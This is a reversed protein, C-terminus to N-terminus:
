KNRVSLPHFDASDRFWFVDIWDDKVRDRLIEIPMEVTQMRAIRVKRSAPSPKMPSYPFRSEARNWFATVYMVSVRNGGVIGEGIKLAQRGRDM